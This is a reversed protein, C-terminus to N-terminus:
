SRRTPSRRCRSTAEAGRGCEPRQHLLPREQRLRGSAARRHRRRRDPARPQNRTRRRLAVEALHKGGVRRGVRRHDNRRPPLRPSPQRRGPIGQGGRAHLRPEVRRPVDRSRQPAPSQGARGRDVLAPLAVAQHFLLNRGVHLPHPRRLKRGADERALHEVDQRPAPQLVRAGQRLRGAPAGRDRRRRVARRRHRRLRRDRAVGGAAGPFGRADLGRAEQHHAQGRHHHGGAPRGPRPRGRLSDPAGHAGSRLRRPLPRHHPRSVAPPDERSRGAAGGERAVSETAAAGARETPRPPAAAIM